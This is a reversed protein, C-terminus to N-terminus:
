HAATQKDGLEVNVNRPGSPPLPYDHLAAQLLAESLRDDHDWPSELEATTEYVVQATSTDRLVIRLEYHYWLDNPSWPMERWYIGVPVLAIRGHHSLLVPPERLYAQSELNLEVSYRAATDVKQLGSKKLVDDAQAELKAREASPPRSPLQEFRYTAGTVAGPQGTFSSVTTDVNRIGACGSLLLGGLVLAAAGTTFHLNLNTM